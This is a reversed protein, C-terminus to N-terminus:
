YGIFEETRISGEGVGWSTLLTLMAAIMAPPGSLYYIADQLEGKDKNDVHVKQKM